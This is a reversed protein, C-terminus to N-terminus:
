ANDSLSYTSALTRVFALVDAITTADGAQLRKMIIDFLHRLITFQRRHMLKNTKLLEAISSTIWPVEVLLVDGYLYSQGVQRYIINEIDIKKFKIISHDFISM